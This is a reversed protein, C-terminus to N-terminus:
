EADQLSSSKVFERARVIAEDVQGEGPQVGAYKVMDAAQLFEALRVSRAPGFANRERMDRLFEETTQEGARIGTTEEIYQRVIGTLRLYFEKYAGRSTLSEALLAALAAHAIEEPTPPPPEARRRRRWRWAVLAIAAALAAAASVLWASRASRPLARPPLMPELDALSPAADGLESTVNVDIPDTEILAPEGAAESGPRNDIFEISVSRILHKGAHVPELQYHFRRLNETDAKSAAVKEKRESYDRILFDGVAQGFAPPKIEVGAAAEVTVDMEVLDSLRPERPTIRVSLKVPGKMVAREITEGAPAAAGNNGIASCGALLATAL